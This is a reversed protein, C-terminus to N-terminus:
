ARPVTQGPGSVTAYFDVDDPSIEALGTGVRTKVREEFQPKAKENLRDMFKAPMFNKIIVGGDRRVAEFIREIPADVPITQLTAPVTTTSSQLTAATM